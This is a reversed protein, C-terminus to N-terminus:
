SRAVPHRAGVGYVEVPQERGKVKFSGCAVADIAGDTCAYTDGTILVDFGCERSLGQVRAAVNVVDGVAGLKMLQRSGVVGIVMKGTHIAIGVELRPAGEALWRERMAAFVVQAEVAAQVAHRAHALGCMRPEFIVFVGDGLFDIPRGRHKKVVEVLADTYENLLTTVAEPSLFESLSSYGRLDSFFATAVEAQGGLRLGTVLHLTRGLMERGVFKGLTARARAYEYLTLGNYMLIISILPVGVLLVQQDHLFEYVALAFMGVMLVLAAVLSSWLPLRLLPAAMLLCCVLSIANIVDRGVLHLPLPLPKRETKEAQRDSMDTSDGYSRGSRQSSTALHATLHNRLAYNRITAAIHAHIHVGPMEGFVTLLRDKAGIDTEGIFVIKNKFEDLQEGEMDLVTEYAYNVQLDNFFSSDGLYDILMDGEDDVPISRALEQPSIGLAIAEAQLGLCPLRHDSGELLRVYRVFGDNGDRVVGLNALARAHRRLALPPLGTGSRVTISGPTPGAARREGQWAGIVVNHQQALTRALIALEQQWDKVYRDYYPQELPSLDATQDPLMLDVAIVRARRLKNILQALVSRPIARPLAVIVIDKTSPIRTAADEGPYGGRILFCRDLVAHDLYDPYRNWRLSRRHLNSAALTVLCSLLLYHM